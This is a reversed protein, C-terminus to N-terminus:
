VLVVCVVLHSASFAADLEPAEHSSSSATCPLACHPHLQAILGCRNGTVYQRNTQESRACECTITHFHAVILTVLSVVLSAICHDNICRIKM